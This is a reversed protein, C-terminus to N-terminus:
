CGGLVESPWFGGLHRMCIRQWRVGQVMHNVCLSRRPFTPVFACWFCALTKDGKIACAGVEGVSVSAWPGAANGAQPLIAAADPVFQLPAEDYPTWCRLTRLADATIGCIVNYGVDIEAWITDNLSPPVWHEWSSDQGDGWCQMTGKAFRTSCQFWEASALLSGAADPVFVDDLDM